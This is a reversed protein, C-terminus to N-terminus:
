EVEGDVATARWVAVSAEGRVVEVGDCLVGLPEMEEGFGMNSRTKSGRASVMWELRGPMGSMSSSRVKCLLLLLLVLM